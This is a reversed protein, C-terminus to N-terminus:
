LGGTGQGDPIIIEIDGGNEILTAQDPNQTSDEGPDDTEAPEASDTLQIDPAATTDVPESTPEMTEDVPAASEPANTEAPDIAEQTKNKRSVIAWVTVGAAIIVCSLIIALIRKTKM